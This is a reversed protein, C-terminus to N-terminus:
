FELDIKKEIISLFNERKKINIFKNESVKKILCFKDEYMEYDKYINIFEFIFNDTKFKNKESFLSSYYQFDKKYITCHMRLVSMVFEKM